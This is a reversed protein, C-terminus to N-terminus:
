VSSCRRVEDHTPWHLYQWFGDWSQELGLDRYEKAFEDLAYLYFALCMIRAATYSLISSLLVIMTGMYALHFFHDCDNFKKGDEKVRKMKLKEEVLERFGFHWMM